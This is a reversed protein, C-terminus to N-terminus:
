NAPADNAALDEGHAEQWARKLEDPANGYFLVSESENNKLSDTLQKIDVITTYVTSNAHPTKAEFWFKNATVHLMDDQLQLSELASSHPGWTPLDLDSGSPEFVLSEAGANQCALAMRQIVELANVGISITGWEPSHGHRDAFAEIVIQKASFFPECDQESRKLVDKDKYNSLNAILEDLEQTRLAEPITCLAKAARQMTGRITEEQILAATPGAVVYDDRDDASTDERILVTVPQVLLAGAKDMFEHVKSTFSDGVEGNFCAEFSTIEPSLTSDIRPNFFGDADDELVEDALQLFAEANSKLM